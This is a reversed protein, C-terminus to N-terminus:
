PVHVGSIGGDLKLNYLLLKELEPQIDKLEPCFARIIMIRNIILNNKWLNLEMLYGIATPLIGWPSKKSSSMGYNPKKM